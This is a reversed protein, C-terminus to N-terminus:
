GRFETCVTHGETFGNCINEGNDIPRFAQARVTGVIRM